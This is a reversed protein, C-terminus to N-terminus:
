PQVASLSDLTRRAHLTAQTAAADGRVFHELDAVASATNGAAAHLLGREYYHFSHEPQLEIAQDLAVIGEPYRGGRMHVIGRMRHARARDEDPLDSSTAAVALDDLGYDLSDLAFLSSGRFFYALGLDPDLGVARDLDEIAPAFRRGMWRVQGRKLYATALTSDQQIAETYHAGARVLQMQAFAEDGRALAERAPDPRCAALALAPLLLLFRADM